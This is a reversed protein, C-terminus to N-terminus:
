RAGQMTVTRRTLNVIATTRSYVRGRRFLVEVCRDVRCQDRADTSGIPLFELVPEDDGTTFLRVPQQRRQRTVLQRVTDLEASSFPIAPRTQPRQQPPTQSLIAARDVTLRLASLVRRNQLDVVVQVGYHEQAPVSYIIEAHRGAPEDAEPRQSTSKLAIMEVYAPTGSTGVLERVRADAAAIAVAIRREEDTLPDLPLTKQAAAPTVMALLLMLARVPNNM